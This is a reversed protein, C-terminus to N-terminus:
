FYMNKGELLGYVGKGFACSIGKLIEKKGFKKTIEKLELM